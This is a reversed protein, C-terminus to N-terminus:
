CIELVMLQKDDDQCMKLSRMNNQLIGGARLEGTATRFYLVLYFRYRKNAFVDIGRLNILYDSKRAISLLVSCSRKRM